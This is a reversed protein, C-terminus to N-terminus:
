TKGWKLFVIETDGYKRVDFPKLSSSFGIHTKKFKELVILAGDSLIGCNELKTLLKDYNYSTYSYPPDAFVIDYVKGRNVSLWSLVNKTHVSAKDGAGAIDINRKIVKCSAFSSDVFDCWNTGRSIAEIGLAGTGSFLDLVVSGHIREAIINFVAERVRDPTPRVGKAPSILKKGKFKGAIIRM